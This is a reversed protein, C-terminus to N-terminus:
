RRPYDPRPMNAAAQELRDAMESMAKTMAPLARALAKMGNEIAPKAEAIQRELNRDFNPDDRRGLDRVTLKKEQATPARGEVAAQVQGAPLDLFASSLAQVMNTLRDAMAPDSLQPPIEIKQPQRPPEAAVPAAILGLPLLLLQYRM